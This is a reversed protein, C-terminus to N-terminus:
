QQERRGDILFLGPVFADLGHSILSLGDADTGHEVGRITVEGEEDM